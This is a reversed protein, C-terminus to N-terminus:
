RRLTWKKIISRIEEKGFSVIRKEGYMSLAIRMAILQTEFGKKSFQKENLYLFYAQELTTGGTEQGETEEKEEPRFSDWDFRLRHKILSGEKKAEQRTAFSETERKGTFPNTYYM